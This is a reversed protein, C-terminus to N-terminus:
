TGQESAGRGCCQSFSNWLIYDLGAYRGAGVAALFLLSVFEVSQYYVPEAGYALPWQTLMVQFLFGAAALAALRTFLGLVLLVGSGFVVWTVIKDVKGLNQNAQSIAYSTGAAEQGLHNLDDIYDAEYSALQGTWKNLKGYLEGDKEALRAEFHQVGRYREDQRKAQHAQVENFYEDIDEKNDDFYYKIRTQYRKFLDEALKKDKDSLGFQAIAQDRYRKGRDVVIATNLREAGYLDHVM